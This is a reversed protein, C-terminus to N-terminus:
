QINKDLALIAYKKLVDNNTHEIYKQLLTKRHAESESNAPVSLHGLGHIAAEQCSPSETSLIKDLLSLFDEAVDLKGKSFNVRWLLKDFAMFLIPAEQLNKKYQEIIEKENIKKQKVLSEYEEIVKDKDSQLLKNIDSEDLNFKSTSEELHNLKQDGHSCWLRYMKDIFEFVLKRASGNWTLAPLTYSFLNWLGANLNETKKFDEFSSFRRNLLRGVENKDSYDGLQQAADESEEFDKSFVKELMLGVDSHNIM